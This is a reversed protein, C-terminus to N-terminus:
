WLKIVALMGDQGGGHSSQAANVTALDPACTTGALALTGDRYAISGFAQKGGDCNTGGIRMNSLVDALTASLTAFGSSASGAQGFPNTPDAGGSRSGVTRALYVRGWEDVALVTVHNAMFTGSLVRGGDSPDVLAYMSSMGGASHQYSGAAWTPNYGPVSLDRPDKALVSNGGDTWCQVGVNGQPMAWAQYCRSDATHGGDTADAVAHGWLIWLRDDTGPEFARFIPMQLNGGAQRYGVRLDLDHRPDSYLKGPSGPLDPKDQFKSDDNSAADGELSGSGGDYVVSFGNGNATVRGESDISVSTLQQDGEGGAYTLAM